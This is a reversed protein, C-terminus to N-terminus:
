EVVVIPLRTIPSKVPVIKCREGDPLMGALLVTHIRHAPIEYLTGDPYEVALREGEYVFATTIKGLEATIEKDAM